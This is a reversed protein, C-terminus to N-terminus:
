PKTAKYVYYVMKRPLPGALLRGLIIDENGPGVQVVLYERNLDADYIRKGAYGHEALYQYIAQDDSLLSDDSKHRDNEFVLYSQSADLSQKVDSFRMEIIPEKGSKDM